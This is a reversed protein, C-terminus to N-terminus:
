AVKHSSLDITVKDFSKKAGDTTEIMEISVQATNATIMLYGFGKLSKKFITEGMQQGNAAM